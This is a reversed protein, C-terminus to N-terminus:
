KVTPGALWPWLTPSNKMQLETRKEWEGRHEDVTDYVCQIVARGEALAANGQGCGEGWPKRYGWRESQAALQHVSDGQGSDQSCSYCKSYHTWAQVTWHRVTDERSLISQYKHRLDNSLTSVETKGVGPKRNVVKKKGEGFFCFLVFVWAMIYNKFFQIRVFCKFRM